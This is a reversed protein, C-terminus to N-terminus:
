RRRRISFLMAVASLILTMSAPEPVASAAAGGGAPLAQTFAFFDNFGWPSGWNEVVAAFDDANVDGDGNADNPDAGGFPDGTLNWLGFGDNDEGPDLEFGGAMFENFGGDADPDYKADVYAIEFSDGGGREFQIGEISTTIGGEPVSFTGGTWGHGRTGNYIAEGDGDISVNGNEGHTTEFVVGPLNILCGDDSGCGVTWDGEPIVVTGSIRNIFDGMGTGTVGNAYPFPDNSYSGAGGELDATLLGDEPTIDENIIVDLVTGNLIGRAETTNNVQANPGEPHLRVFRYDLDSCVITHHLWQEPLLWSALM